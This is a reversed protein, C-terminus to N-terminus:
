IQIRYYSYSALIFLTCVENFVARINHYPKLYPRFVCLLIITIVPLALMVYSLAALANLLVILAMLLIRNLCFYLYYKQAFRSENFLEKFEGMKAKKLSYLVLMAILAGLVLAGVAVGAYFGADYLETTGVQLLLCTTEYYLM